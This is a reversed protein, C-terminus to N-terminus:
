PRMIRVPGCRLKGGQHETCLHWTNFVALGLVAPVWKPSLPEVFGGVLFSPARKRGELGNNLLRAVMRRCTECERYGSGM